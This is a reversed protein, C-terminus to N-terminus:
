YAALRQEERALARAPRAVDARWPLGDGPPAIRLHLGHLVTM